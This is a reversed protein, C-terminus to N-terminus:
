SDFEIVELTRSADVIDVHKLGECVFPNEFYLIAYKGNEISYYPAEIGSGIWGNPEGIVEEIDSFSSGSELSRFDELTLERDIEKYYVDFNRVKVMGNEDVMTNGGERDSGCGALFALALALVLTIAISKLATAAAKRM